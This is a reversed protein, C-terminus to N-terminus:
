LTTLSQRFTRRLHRHLQRRLDAVDAGAIDVSQRPELGFIHQAIIPFAKPDFNAPPSGQARGRMQVEGQALAGANRRATSSTPRTSRGPTAASPPSPQKGRSSPATAVAPIPPPILAAQFSCRATIYPM